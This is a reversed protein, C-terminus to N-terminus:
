SRPEIQRARGDLRFIFFSVAAVMGAVGIVSLAVSITPDHSLVGLAVVATVGVLWIVASVRPSL